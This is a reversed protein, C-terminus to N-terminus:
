RSRPKIIDYLPIDLKPLWDYAWDNDAATAAKGYIAKM